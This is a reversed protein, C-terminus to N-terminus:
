RRFDGGWVRSIAAHKRDFLHGAECHRMIVASIAQDISSSTLPKRTGDALSAGACSARGAAARAM